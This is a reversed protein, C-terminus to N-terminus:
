RETAVLRTQKVGCDRMLAEEERDKRGVGTPKIDQLNQRQWIAIEPKRHDLMIPKDENINQIAEMAEEKQNVVETEHVMQAVMLLEEVAVAQATTMVVM